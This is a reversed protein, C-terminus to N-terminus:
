KPVLRVQRLDMVAVGPKKLPKVTLSHRGAKEVNMEGIVKTVFNQFGGTEEVTFTLKQEGVAVEVESGGSGNGCGVLM